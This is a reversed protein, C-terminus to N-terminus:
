WRTLTPCGPGTRDLAVRMISHAAAFRATSHERQAVADHGEVDSGGHSWLWRERRDPTLPVRLWLRQWSPVRDLREAVGGPPM